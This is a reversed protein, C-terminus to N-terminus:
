DDEFLEAAAPIKAKFAALIPDLVTVIRKFRLRELPALKFLLSYETRLYKPATSISLNTFIKTKLFDQM